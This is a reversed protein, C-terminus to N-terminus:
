VYGNEANVIQNWYGANDRAERLGELDDDWAYPERKALEAARAQCRAQYFSVRDNWYAAQRRVNRMKEAYSKMIRVGM